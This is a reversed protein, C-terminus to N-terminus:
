GLGLWRRIGQELHRAQCPRLQQDLDLSDGHEAPDNALLHISQRLIAAPSGNEGGDKRDVSIATEGSGTLVPPEVTQIQRNVLSSMQQEDKRVLCEHEETTSQELQQYGCREHNGEPTVTVAVTRGDREPPHALVTPVDRYVHTIRPRLLERQHTSSFMVPRNQQRVPVPQISVLRKSICHVQDAYHEIHHRYDTPPDEQPFVGTSGSPSSGLRM